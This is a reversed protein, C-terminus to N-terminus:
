ERAPTIAVALSDSEADRPALFKVAVSYKALYKLVQTKDVFVAPDVGHVARFTQIAHNMMKTKLDPGGGDKEEKDRDDPSIWFYGYGTQGVVPADVGRFQGFFKLSRRGSGDTYVPSVILEPISNYFAGKRGTGLALQPPRSAQTIRKEQEPDSPIAALQDLSYEEAM